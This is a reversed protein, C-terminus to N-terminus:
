TTASTSTAMRASLCPRLRTLLVTRIPQSGPRSGSIGRKSETGSPLTNRVLNRALTHLWSSGAPCQWLKIGCSFTCRCLPELLDPKLLHHEVAGVAAYWVVNEQLIYTRIVADLASVFDTTAPLLRSGAPDPAQGRPSDMGRKLPRLQTCQIEEMRELM